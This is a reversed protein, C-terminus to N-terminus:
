RVEFPVQRSVAHGNRSRAELKLVYHGASFRSMPVRATHGYAGSAGQLETSSREDSHEFVVTGDASTVTTVVDVTHASGASRDYIEAYLLIEDDRAFTRQSVPPAPMVRELLADGRATPTSVGERSTLLIGSMGLPMRNYDPIELDYNLSGVNGRAIDHAAVRLQYRGPPLDLRKIIRIGTKEIRAKAEPAPAPTFYETSSRTQGSADM